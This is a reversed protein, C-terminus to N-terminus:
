DVKAREAEGLLADAVDKRLGQATLLELRQQYGLGRLKWERIQILLELKKKDDPWNRSNRWIRLALAIAAAISGIAVGLMAFALSRM